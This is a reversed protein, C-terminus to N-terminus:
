LNSHQLSPPHPSLGHRWDSRGTATSRTGEPWRWTELSGTWGPVLVSRFFVAKSLSSVNKTSFCNCLRPFGGFRTLSRTLEGLMTSWDPRDRSFSNFPLSSSSPPNFPPLNSSTHFPLDPPPSSFFGKSHERHDRGGRKGGGLGRQRRREKGCLLVEGGGGGGAGFLWVEKARGPGGAERVEM